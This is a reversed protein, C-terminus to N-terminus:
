VQAPNHAVRGRFTFAAYFLQVDAFGAETLMAADQEPSLMLLREGIGKAANHAMAPDIGNSMAFAAFRNLWLAKEGAEQPLSHHAVVLPAGPKLRQRLHVLTRLREAPEIM